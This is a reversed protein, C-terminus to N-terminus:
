AALAMVRTATREVEVRRDANGIGRAWATIAQVADFVTEIPRGEEDICKGMIQTVEKTGFGYNSLFRTREADDRAIKARRAAELGTV